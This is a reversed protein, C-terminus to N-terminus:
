QVGEIAKRAREAFSERGEESEVNEIAKRQRVSGEVEEVLSDAWEVWGRYTRKRESEVAPVRIWSFVRYAKTGRRISKFRAYSDVGERAFRDLNQLMKRLAGVPDDFGCRMMIHTTLLAVPDFLDLQLSTLLAPLFLNLKEQTDANEGTRPSLIELCGESLVRAYLEVRGIAYDIPLGSRVLGTFAYIKDRWESCNQRSFFIILDHISGDSLVGFFCANLATASALHEARTQLDGKPSDSGVGNSGALAGGRTARKPSDYERNLLLFIKFSKADLSLHRYKFVSRRSLAIEQVIWARSWYGPPLFATQFVTWIAMRITPNEGGVADLDLFQTGECHQQIAEVAKTDCGRWRDENGLWVVVQAAGRYVDGMLRVQANRESLDHQNICIADIFIWGTDKEVHRQKLYNFLNPRVHFVTGNVVTTCSPNAQTWCYSLAEYEPQGNLSFAKLECTITEDEDDDDDCLLRVLRIERKTEDLHPYFAAPEKAESAM